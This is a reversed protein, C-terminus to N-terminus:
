PKAERLKSCALTEKLKFIEAAQENVIRMLRHREVMDAQWRPDFEGARAIRRLRAVEAVYEVDGKDLQEGLDSM